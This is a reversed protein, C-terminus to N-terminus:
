DKDRFNQVNTPQFDPNLFKEHKKRVDVAEEKLEEQMEKIMMKRAMDYNYGVSVQVEFNDGVRRYMKVIPMIMGFKKAVRNASVEITKTLSAADKANIQNNAVDSEVVSRFNTEILGALRNKSLEMAQMDAAAQTNAVSSGEAIIWQPYGEETAEEQKRYSKDLQQGIPPQGIFPTFGDKEYKKAQKKVDRSLKKFHFKKENAKNALSKDDKKDKQSFVQQNGVM